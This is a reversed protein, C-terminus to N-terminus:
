KRTVIALNLDMVNTDTSETIIADGIRMLVEYSNHKILNRYVDINNEKARKLTFGDVIGGAV